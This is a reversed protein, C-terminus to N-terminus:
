FYFYDSLTFYENYLALIAIFHIAAILCYLNIRISFFSVIYFHDFLCLFIVLAILPTISFHM